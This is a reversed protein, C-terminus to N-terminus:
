YTDSLLFSKGGQFLELNYPCAPPPPPGEPRPIVEEFIRM